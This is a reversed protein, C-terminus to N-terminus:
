KKKKTTTFSTSPPSSINYDNTSINVELSQDIDELEDQEENIDEEVEDVDVDSINGDSIRPTVTDKLFLMARFYSWRGQYLAAYEQSSGSRSSPIKKFEKLFQDRLSRWKKKVDDETSILNLYQAFHTFWYNNSNFNIYWHVLLKFLM